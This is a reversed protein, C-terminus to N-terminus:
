FPVNMIVMRVPRFPRLYLLRLSIIFANLDQRLGEASLAVQIDCCLLTEFIYVSIDLVKTRSGRICPVHTVSLLCRILFCGDWTTGRSKDRCM